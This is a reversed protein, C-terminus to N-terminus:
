NILNLIKKLENIITETPICLVPNKDNTYAVSILLNRDTLSYVLKYCTDPIAVRYNLKRNSLHNYCIILLSDHQSMNRIKTEYAKWEGRNLEPTQPVCNYYRFTMEDLECNNAFDESNAMHGKDYGSHSYDLNTATKLGNIDNRFVYTARSCEGGGNFIKYTVIIPVLETKSYYAKYASTTIITDYCITQANIDTTFLVSLLLIINKM